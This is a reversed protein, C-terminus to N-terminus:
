RISDEHTGIPYNAGQKVLGFYPYLQYLDNGNVGWFIRTIKFRCALKKISLLFNRKSCVGDLQHQHFIDM